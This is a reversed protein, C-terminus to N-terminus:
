LMEKYRSLINKLKTDIPLGFFKTKWRLMSSTYFIATLMKMLVTKNEIVESFPNTWLTNYSITEVLSSEKIWPLEGASVFIMDKIVKDHWGRLIQPEEYGLKLCTEYLEGGPYPRFLQPGVIRFQPSIHLLKDILKVTKMMDKRTEGPMGIMFSYFAKLGIKKCM